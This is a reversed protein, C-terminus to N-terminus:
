DREEQQELWDALVQVPHNVAKGEQRKVQSRCSYGTVVCNDVGYKRVAAGFSQRYIRTSSELHVAEHGYMGAM